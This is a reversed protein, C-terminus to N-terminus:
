EIVADMAIRQMKRAARIANSRTAYGEGSDAMTKGNRHKIRWRYLRAKDMYVTLAYAPKM